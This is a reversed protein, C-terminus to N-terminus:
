EQEYRTQIIYIAITSIFAILTMLIYFQPKTHHNYFYVSIQFMLQLALAISTGLYPILAMAYKQKREGAYVNLVISVIFVPIIFAAHVLITGLDNFYDINSSTGFHRALDYLVREGLGLIVLLLVVVVFGSSFTLKYGFLPDPNSRIGVGSKRGSNFIWIVFGIIIITTLFSWM